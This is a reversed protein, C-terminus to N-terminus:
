SNKHDNHPTSSKYASQAETGEKCQKTKRVNASYIQVQVWQHRVTQLCRSEWYSMVRKGGGLSMVTKVCKFHPCLSGTLHRCDCLGCAWIWALSLEAATAMSVSTRPRTTDLGRVCEYDCVSVSVWECVWVTTHHFCKFILTRWFEAHQQVKLQETVGFRKWWDTSVSFSCRKSQKEKLSVRVLFLVSILPTLLSVLRDTPFHWTACRRLLVM